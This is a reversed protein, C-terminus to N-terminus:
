VDLVVDGDRLPQIIKFSNTNVVIRNWGNNRMNSRLIREEPDNRLEVEEITEIKGGLFYTNSRDSIASDLDDEQRSRTTFYFAFPKAGYREVVERSMKVAADTEWSAIPKTSEEHVFSGPSLFTVFHKQVM